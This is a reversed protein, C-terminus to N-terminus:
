SGFVRILKNNFTPKQPDPTAQTPFFFNGEKTEIITTGGDRYRIVEGIIKVERLNDLAGIKVIWNRYSFKVPQSIVFYNNEDITGFYAVAHGKKCNEKLREAKKKTTEM